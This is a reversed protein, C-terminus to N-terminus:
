DASGLRGGGGLEGHGRHRRKKEETDLRKRLSKKVGALVVGDKCGSGNAIRYGAM